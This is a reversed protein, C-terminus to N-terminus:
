WRSPGYLQEFKAGYLNTVASVASEPSWEGKAVRTMIALTQQELSKDLGPVRTGNAAKINRPEAEQQKLDRMASFHEDALMTEERFNLQREKVEQPDM